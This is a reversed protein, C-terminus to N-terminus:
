ATRERTPLPPTPFADDMIAMNILTMAARYKEIREHDAQTLPRPLRGTNMNDALDARKVKRALQNLCCREIFAQYSEGKRRTLADVADAVENGFMRSITSLPIGGDEVVDHLIAAIQEAEKDFLLMLRLPHLIYPAGGKDFQGHHATVALSIASSLRANYELEGM